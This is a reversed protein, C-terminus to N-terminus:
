DFDMNDILEDQSLGPHIGSKGSKRDTLYERDTLEDNVGISKGPSNKKHIKQGKM